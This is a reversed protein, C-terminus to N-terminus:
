LMSTAYLISGAVCPASFAACYQRPIQCADTFQPVCWMSQLLQLEIVMVVIIHRIIAVPISIDALDIEAPADENIKPRWVSGIPVRMTLQYWTASLTARSGYTDNGTM